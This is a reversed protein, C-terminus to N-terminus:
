RSRWEKGVRREESRGWHAASDIGRALGTWVGVGRRALGQALNEAAKLGYPTSNRSGVIAVFTPKSPIALGKTYLVMPPDHIERLPEPYAPDSFTVLRAGYRELDRLVKLPDLNFERRVISQAVKKRLGEVQALDTLNARLVEAPDGFRDLLKKFTLNGLGPVLHLALWDARNESPIMKM